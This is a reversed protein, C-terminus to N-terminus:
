NVEIPVSFTHFVFFSYVGIDQGGQMGGWVQGDIGDIGDITDIMDIVGTMDSGEIM